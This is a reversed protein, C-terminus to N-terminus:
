SFGFNKRETEWDEEVPKRYMLRRSVSTGLKQLDVLNEAMKIACTVCNLVPVGDVVLVEQQDLFAGLGAAGVIVIEAGDVVCERAVKTFADKAAQIHAASGVAIANIYIEEPINRVPKVPILHPTFGYKDLVDVTKMIGKEAVAIVAISSKKRGLMLAFSFSAEAVGVVPFNVVERAEDLGPDFYCANIAADYGDREAKIMAEVIYPRQLLDFYLTDAGSRHMVARGSINIIELETDPKIAKETKLRNFYYQWYGSKDWGPALTSILAIKGM